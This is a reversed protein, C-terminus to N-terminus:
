RTDAVPVTPLPARAAGEVAVMEIRARVLGRKGVIEVPTSRDDRAFYIWITDDFPKAEGKRDGRIAFGRIPMRADNIEREEEELPEIRAAYSRGDNWIIMRSERDPGHWRLRYVASAYDITRPDVVSAERDKRREKIKQSSWVSVTSGTREDVVAGYLYYDGARKTATVLFQIEIRGDPLPVFTLLADGSSPVFLGALFGLFGSLRWRLRVVEGGNEIAHQAAQEPETRLARVPAAADPPDAGAVPLPALLGLAV